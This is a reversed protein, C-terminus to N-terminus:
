GMEMVALLLWNHTVVEVPVYVLNAYYFVFNFTFQLLFLYTCNYSYFVLNMLLLLLEDIQFSRRSHSVCRGNELLPTM